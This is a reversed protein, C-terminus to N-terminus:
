GIDRGLVQWAEPHGAAVDAKHELPWLMGYSKAPLPKSPVNRTFDLDSEIARYPNSCTCWYKRLKTHM